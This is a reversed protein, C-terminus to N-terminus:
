VISQLLKITIEFDNDKLPESKNTNISKENEKLFYLRNIILDINRLKYKLYNHDNFIFNDIITGATNRNRHKIKIAEYIIFAISDHSCNFIAEKFINLLYRKEASNRLLNLKEIYHSIQNLGIPYHEIEGLIFINQYYPILLHGFRNLNNIGLSKLFRPSSVRKKNERVNVLFSNINRIKKNQILTIILILSLITIAVSLIGTTEM